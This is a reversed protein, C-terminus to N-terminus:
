PSACTPLVLPSCQDYVCVGNGNVPRSPWDVRVEFGGFNQGTCFLTQLGLAGVTGTQAGQIDKCGAGEDLDQYNPACAYTRGNSDDRVVTSGAPQVAIFTVHDGQQPCRANCRGQECGGVCDVWTPPSVVVGTNVEPCWANPGTCPNKSECRYTLLNGNADCEDTFTGNSGVFTHNVEPSPGVTPAGAECSIVRRAPACRNGECYPLAAFVSCDSDAYCGWSSPDPPGAPSSAVDGAGADPMLGYPDGATVDAPGAEPDRPVFFLDGADECAGTVVTTSAQSPTTKGVCGALCFFLAHSAARATYLRDM